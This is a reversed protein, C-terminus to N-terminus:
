KVPKKNKAERLDDGFFKLILKEKDRFETRTSDVVKDNTNEWRIMKKNEFYAHEEFYVNPSRLSVYTMETLQDENILYITTSSFGSGNFDRTIKGIANNTYHIVTKFNTSNTIVSRKNYKVTDPDKYGTQAFAIQSGLLFIFVFIYSHLMGHPNTM